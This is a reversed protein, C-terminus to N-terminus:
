AARAGAAAEAPEPWCVGRFAGVAIVVAVVRHLFAWLTEVEVSPAPPVLARQIEPAAFLAFAALLAVADLGRRADRAGPAFATAVPSVCLFAAVGAPLGQGAVLLAAAAVLAAGARIGAVGAGVPVRRLLALLDLLALVALPGFVPVLTARRDPGPLWPHRSAVLWLVTAAVAACTATEGARVGRRTCALLSTAALGWSALLALAAAAGAREAGTAAGHWPLLYLGAAVLLAALRWRARAVPAPTPEELAGALAGKV